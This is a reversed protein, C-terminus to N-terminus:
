VNMNCKLLLVVRNTVVQFTLDSTIRFFLYSLSLQLLSYYAIM